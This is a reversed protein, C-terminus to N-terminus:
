RSIDSPHYQLQPPPARSPARSYHVGGGGGRSIGSAVGGIISGAVDAWGSGGGGGSSPYSDDGADALGIETRGGCTICCNECGESGQGVGWHYTQHDRWAGYCIQEGAECTLRFTQTGNSSVNYQQNDGPWAHGDRTKSYFEVGVQYRDHNTIVFIAPPPGKDEGGDTLTTELEGGCSVCCNACAQDNYHGVGWQADQTERWAGFCVKEDAVCSKTRTITEHLVYYESGLPDTLSSYSESFLKFGVQYRDKNHVTFKVSFPHDDPKPAPPIGADDPADGDALHDDGPKTDLTGRNVCVISKRVSVLSGAGGNALEYEHTGKFLWNDAAARAKFRAQFPDPGNRCAMARFKHIVGEGDKMLQTGTCAYHVPGSISGQGWKQRDEPEQSCETKEDGGVLELRYHEFSVSTDGMRVVDGMELAHKDYEVSDAATRQPILLTASAVFSATVLSALLHAPTPPWSLGKCVAFIRLM